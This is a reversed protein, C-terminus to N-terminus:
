KNKLTLYRQRFYEKRPNDSCRCQKCHTIRRMRKIVKRAEGLQQRLRAMAERTSRHVEM